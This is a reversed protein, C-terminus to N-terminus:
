FKVLVCTIDDKSRRTRAMQCLETAILSLDSSSHASAYELAEKGSLVDFLGDSGMVLLSPTTNSTYSSLYPDAIIINQASKALPPRNDAGGEKKLKRALKRNMPPPPIPNHKMDFDGITRSPQLVGFM